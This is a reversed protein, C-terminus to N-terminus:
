KDVPKVMMRSTQLLMGETVSYYWRFHTRAGNPEGFACNNYWWGAGNKEACTTGHSNDITNFAMGNINRASGPTM